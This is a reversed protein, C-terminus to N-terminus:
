EYRLAILPDVRMARRAPLYCALFGVAALFGGTAILTAPDGSHVGFLLGSMLPTLGFSLLLGLILGSSVPLMGERLVMGLIDRPQAGLAIRTGLENTRQLVSYSTVGYVGTCALLMAILALAGALTTTFLTERRAKDVYAEMPQVNYIPLDKDLKSVERQLFPLLTQPPATSKIAISMHPRIAQPYPLYIQGRVRDTLSHSQIHKVVGVVEIAGRENDFVKAKHEINLKKGLASANPWAREAVAEDIIVVARNEKIDFDDFDRGAVFTAGIAHFYGPFISRHDAMITNQDQKPAGDPWYYSYWNPLSDDFPLHSTLGVSDVGPVGALNKQLDRFFTIAAEPTQYKGSAASVHFTFVNAPAFGPRVRLLGAFTQIMLGAGILLVFGLAVECVVLISRSDPRTAVISRGGEKLSAVLNVRTAGLAPMVGCLIGAAVSMALTFGFASFDLAIAGLREMEQPRLSLLLKLAWAGILLAAVGGLCSLLVSETLLQRILRGRTAGMAIRLTVERQRQSARSLLLNAVNACAILLVFGVGAFLALLAPRLNRVVDGHLPAIRMTMAQESFETYRSRLEAAIQDAEIQAQELTVGQKLRGVVRIYGQEPPQSALDGPFPIFIDMDPPVSSGEPFIIRFGPSMVGVVTYPESNLRVSKGILQPDAGFRRHWLADSLIIVRPKGWGQEGSDFFRGLQPKASLLSLFNSTVQGIKVQEPEREGTLAGSQAWIGGFEDFMRSRERLYTLEPGSAPARGEKGYVSWVIALREPTPYPFPALLVAHVVSFIATNAGIGVALTLIAVATFGPTKALMRLGFRVDNWLTEFFPLGRQERYNEKTQEVGGFERRAAYQAEDQSIGRRVNEEAALELHAYLEAELREEITRRRFIGVARAAFMRLDSWSM